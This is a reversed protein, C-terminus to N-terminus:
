FNILLKKMKLLASNTMGQSILYYAMICLNYPIADTEDKTEKFHYIQVKIRTFIQMM